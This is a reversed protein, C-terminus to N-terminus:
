RVINRRFILTWILVDSHLRTPRLALHLERVRTKPRRLQCAPNAQFGLSWFPTRRCDRKALCVNACRSRTRAWLFHLTSRRRRSWRIPTKAESKGFDFVLQVLISRPLFGMSRRRAHDSFHSARIFRTLRNRHASPMRTGLRFSQGVAIWPGVKDGWGDYHEGYCRRTFRFADSHVEQLWDRPTKRLVHGALGNHSGCLNGGIRVNLTKPTFGVSLPSARSTVEVRRHSVERRFAWSADEPLEGKPSLRVRL